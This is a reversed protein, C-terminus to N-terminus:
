SHLIQLSKVRAAKNRALVIKGVPKGEIEGAIVVAELGRISIIAEALRLCSQEHAANHANGALSLLTSEELHEAGDLAKGLNSNEGILKKVSSQESSDLPPQVWVTACPRGDQRYGDHITMNTVVDGDTMDLVDHQDVMFLERVKNIALISRKGHDALMLTIFVGFLV